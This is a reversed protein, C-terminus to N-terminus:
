SKSEANYVSTLREAFFEGSLIVMLAPERAGFNYAMYMHTTASERLFILQIGM